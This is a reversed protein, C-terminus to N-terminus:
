RKKGNPIQNQNLEEATKDASASAATNGWFNVLTTSLTSVAKEQVGVGSKPAYKGFYKSSVSGFLGNFL